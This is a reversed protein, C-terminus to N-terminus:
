IVAVSGGFSTSTVVGDFLYFAFSAPIHVIDLEFVFVTGTFTVAIMFITSGCFALGQVDALSYDFCLLLTPAIAIQSASEYKAQRCSTLDFDM